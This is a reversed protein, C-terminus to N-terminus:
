VALKVKDLLVEKVRKALILCICIGPAYVICRGSGPSRIGEVGRKPGLGLELGM